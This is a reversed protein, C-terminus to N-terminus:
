KQEAIKTRRVIQYEVIELNARTYGPNEDLFKWVDIMRRCEPGIYTGTPIHFIRYM